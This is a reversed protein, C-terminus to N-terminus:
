REPPLDIHVGRQAFFKRLLELQKRRNQEGISDREPRIPEGAPQVKEPSKLHTEGVRTSAAIIRPTLRKGEKRFIVSQLQAFLEDRSSKPLKEIQTKLAEFPPPLREASEPVRLPKAFTLDGVIWSQKDPQLLDFSLEIGAANPQASYSIKEVEEREANRAGAWAVSAVLRAADRIQVKLTRHERPGTMPVQQEGCFGENGWNRVFFAWSHTRFRFNEDTRVFMAYVPHLEPKGRHPTDMGLMGIVIVSRGDILGRRESDAKEIGNEHHFKMWWTDTNDWQNVTERSDFEVHVQQDEVCFLAQDDRTVNFTYDDDFPREGTGDWTVRGEYAVPMFNAHPHPGCLYASNLSVPYSTCHPASTWASPHIASLPCSDKPSPLINLEVQLGWKPNLPFGNADRAAAVVDFPKFQAKASQTSFFCAFLLTGLLVPTTRKLRTAPNM